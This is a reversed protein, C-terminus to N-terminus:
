NMYLHMVTKTEDVCGAEQNLLHKGVKNLVLFYFYTIYLYSYFIGHIVLIDVKMPTITITQEAAEDSIVSM